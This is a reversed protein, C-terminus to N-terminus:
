KVADRLKDVIWVMGETDLGCYKELAARTKKAEKTGMDGYTMSLYALSAAQGESIDLADYSKGVLAPLVAKVSASGEQGSDYYHFNKFPLLLDVFRGVVSDVWKRHEPFLEALSQLVKKEFTANYVVISGGDLMVNKLSDIFKMRPDDKGDAIFSFHKTGGKEDVIHLSYQFPINEYPRTGDLLPIATAFTEFDLFHLPYKLGKLFQRLKPKDVHPKGKIACIRQINQRDTLAIDPPIDKIALVGQKFLSESKEGGSYLDFVNNKPMYSWCKPMLPCDHPSHCHSGIPIDPCEGSKIIYMMNAINDPISVTELDDSVERKVFFDKPEIDGHRVYKNNIHMLHCHKMELGAAACCFKQFAIDPLYEEKLQTSSKVEIIEWGDGSPNLIDIRSYINGAMVGAEFLPKKKELLQKTKDINDMFPETPIDIGGHFLRKALNGVIHGQDFRYQTAEDRPPITGPNNFVTWLLKPCQLGNMYKSKTLPQM